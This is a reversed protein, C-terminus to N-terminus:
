MFKKRCNCSFSSWCLNCKSSPFRFIYTNSLYTVESSSLSCFYLNQFTFYTVIGGGCIASCPTFEDFIWAYADPDLNQSIGKAVSYEYSVGVNREQSLM